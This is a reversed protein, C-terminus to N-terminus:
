PQKSEGGDSEPLSLTRGLEPVFCLPLTDRDAKRITKTKGKLIYGDKQKRRERPERTYEGMFRMSHKEEMVKFFQPLRDRPIDEILNYRSQLYKSLYKKLAASKIHSLLPIKHTPKKIIAKDWQPIALKIFSFYIYTDKDKLNAYFSVKKRLRGWALRNSVAWMAHAIQDERIEKRSHRLFNGDTVGPNSAYFNMPRLKLGDFFCPVGNMLHMYVYQMPVHKQLQYTNRLSSM